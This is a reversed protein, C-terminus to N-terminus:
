MGVVGAADPALAEVAGAVDAALAETALAEVAGAADAALDETALAEVAGAVDAALDETALRGGTLAGADSPGPGPRDVAVLPRPAREAGGPSLSVAAPGANMKSVQGDRIFAQRAALHAPTPATGDIGDGSPGNSSTSMRTSTMTIAAPTPPYAAQRRCSSTRSSRAALGGPASTRGSSGSSTTWALFRVHAISSSATRM